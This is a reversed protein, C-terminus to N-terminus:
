ATALLKIFLYKFSVLHIKEVFDENELDFDLTERLVDYKGMYEM